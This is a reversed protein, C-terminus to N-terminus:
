CTGVEYVVRKSLSPKPLWAFDTQFPYMPHARQLNELRTIGQNVAGDTLAMLAPSALPALEPSLYGSKVVILTQNAPEINFKRFDVLNHFPRRRSTLIVLLGGIDVLAEVDGTNISGLVRIVKCAATVVPGAHGLTAGINLQVRAGKGAKYAAFAAPADVIGAIVAGQVGRALLAELVDARDGVGGGTPNDGSDALIIPGKVGTAELKSIRELCEDLRAAEVGFDFEERVDWYAQALRAASQQAVQADFGTVVACATARPTDAWVYGVLLNADLVGAKADELPLIDYIEKAPSDETSSCEGTM